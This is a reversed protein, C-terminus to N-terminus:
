MSILVLPSTTIHQLMTCSVEANRGREGESVHPNSVHKNADASFFCVGNQTKVIM